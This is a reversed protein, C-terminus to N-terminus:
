SALMSTQELVSSLASRPRLMLLIRGDYALSTSRARASSGFVEKTMQNKVKLEQPLLFCIRLLLKSFDQQPTDTNFAKGM